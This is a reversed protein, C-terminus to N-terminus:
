EYAIQFKMTQFRRSVLLSTESYFNLVDEDYVFGAEFDNGACELLDKDRYHFLNAVISRDLSLYQM